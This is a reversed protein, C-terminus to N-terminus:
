VGIHHSSRVKQKRDPHLEQIVGEMTRLAPFMEALKGYLANLNIQWCFCHQLSLM